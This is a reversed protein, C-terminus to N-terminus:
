AQQEIMELGITYTPGTGQPAPSDQTRQGDDQLLMLLPSSLSDDCPWHWFPVGVGVALLADYIALDASPVAKHEMKIVRRAAAEVLTTEHSPYSRKVVSSQYPAEWGQVVGSTTQAYAGLVWEGIAWQGNTVFKLRWYRFTASAFTRDIAAATATFSDRLATPNATTDGYLEVSCGSLNHGVPIILRNVAKASGLDVELYQNAAAASFQTLPGLRYDILREKGLGSAFATGTSIAAASAVAVLNSVLFAPNRYAM